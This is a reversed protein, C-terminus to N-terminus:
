IKFLAAHREVCSLVREATVWLTPVLHDELRRTVCHNRLLASEGILDVHLLAVDKRYPLFIM